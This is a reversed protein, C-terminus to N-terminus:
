KVFSRQDLKYKTMKGITRIMIFGLILAGWMLPSAFGFQNSCEISLLVVNGGLAAIILALIITCLIVLLTQIMYMRGKYLLEFHIYLPNIMMAFGVWTLVFVLYDTFNMDYLGLPSVYMVGFLIIGNLIIATGMQIYRSLVVVETPIPLTRYYMLMQSYSDEKIYSFSRRTFYFGILPVMMMMMLDVM